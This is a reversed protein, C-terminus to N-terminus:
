LTSLGYGADSACACCTATFSDFHPISTLNTNPVTIIHRPDACDHVKYNVTVLVIISQVREAPGETADELRDLVLKSSV